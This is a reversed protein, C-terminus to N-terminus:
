TSVAVKCLCVCGTAGRGLIWNGQDNPAVRGALDPFLASERDKFEDADEKALQLSELVQNALDGKVM